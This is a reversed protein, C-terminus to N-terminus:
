LPVEILHPGSEALATQLLAIFHNITQAREASVGLGGALRIWDPEPRSLDMLDLMKQGPHDFGLRQLEIQLIQYKRNSFIITTVDM